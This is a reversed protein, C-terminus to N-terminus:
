SHGQGQDQCNEVNFGLHILHKHKGYRKWGGYSCLYPCQLNEMYKVESRQGQVM